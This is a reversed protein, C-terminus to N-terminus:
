ESAFAEAHLPLLGPVSCLNMPMDVLGCANTKMALRRYYDTTNINGTVHMRKANCLVKFTACTHPKRSTAPFLKHQLLQAVQSVVPNYLCFRISVQHVSTTHIVTFGTPGLQLLPCSEGCCHELQIHLNFAHLSTRV